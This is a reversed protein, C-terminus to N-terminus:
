IFIEWEGALRALAEPAGVDHSNHEVHRKLSKIRRNHGRKSAVYRQRKPQRSKNMNKKGGKKGSRKPRVMKPLTTM